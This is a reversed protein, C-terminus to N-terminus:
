LGVAAAANERYLSGDRIYRRVMAESKHGTQQMIARESVGAKAASTALGARLSHGAFRAPDLGAAHAYRKVIEAVANGSLRKHSLHGHRNIGRFIAKATNLEPSPAAETGNQTAPKEGCDTMTQAGNGKRNYLAEPRATHGYDSVDLWARLARVPCTELRSGYPLGVKRGEGEQDTKSRRLTITVGELTFAVDAHNLGVLESRRFAGAFGVLLLARDRKGALTDPLHAVMRRLVETIAPEKCAPAVGKARRIGQWVARVVATKTPSEYGKAAHAQSIAALRRQLTSCKHTEALHSLYLAVTEPTAPLATLRHTDTWATFHNWDARYARRTNDSKAHEAYDRAQAIIETLAPPLSREALLRERNVSDTKGHAGCLAANEVPVSSQAASADSPITEQM